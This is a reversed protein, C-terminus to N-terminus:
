AGIENAITQVMVAAVSAASHTPAALGALFESSPAATNPVPVEHPPSSTTITRLMLM